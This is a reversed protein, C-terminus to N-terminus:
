RRCRGSLPHSPRPARRASRSQQGPKNVVIFVAIDKRHNVMIVSSFGVTGGNKLTEPALNPDGNGINSAWAMGQEAEEGPIRYVPAQALKMANILEDSVPHGAVQEHFLNAESFSLMDIATSRLWGAPYWAFIPWPPALRGNETHRQAMRRMQDPGARM